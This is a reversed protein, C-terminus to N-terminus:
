ELRKQRTSNKIVMKTGDSSLEYGKSVLYKLEQHYMGTAGDLTKVPNSLVIMDGRRITEDLFEQNLKWKDPRTMSKWVEPSIEFYRAGIREAYVQYTGDKGLVTVGIKRASIQAATKEVSSRLVTNGVIYGVSGRTLLSGVAYGSFIDIPDIVPSKLGQNALIIDLRREHRLGFFDHYYMSSVDFYSYDVGLDFAGYYSASSNYFSEYDVGLDFAEYYSGLSNYFSEYDVGLDFAEYYSGLSNYLNGLDVNSGDYVGDLDSGLDYPNDYVVATEFSGFEPGLGLNFPNDFDNEQALGTTFAGFLVLAFLLFKKM